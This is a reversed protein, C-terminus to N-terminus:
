DTDDIQEPYIFVKEDYPQIYPSVIRLEFYAWSSWLQYVGAIRNMIAEDSLMSFIDHPNEQSTDPNVDMMDQILESGSDDEVMPATTDDNMVTAPKKVTKKSSKTPAAKRPSVAKAVKAKKVPKVQDTTQRRTAKKKPKDDPSDTAKSM